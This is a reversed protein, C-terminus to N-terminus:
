PDSAQSSLPRADSPESDEQNELILRIYNLATDLGEPSLDLLLDKLERVKEQSMVAGAICRQSLAVTFLNLYTNLVKIKQNSLYRTKSNVKFDLKVIM